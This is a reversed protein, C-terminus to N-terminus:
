DGMLGMAQGHPAQGHPAQGHPALGHPAEMLRKDM